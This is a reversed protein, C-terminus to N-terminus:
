SKSIKLPGNNQKSYWTNKIKEYMWTVSPINQKEYLYNGTPEMPSKYFLLPTQTAAISPLFSPDPYKSNPPKLIRKTISMPQLFLSGTTKHDKNNKQAHTKQLIHKKKM